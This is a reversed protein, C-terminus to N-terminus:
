VQTNENTKDLQKILEDALQIAKKIHRISSKDCDFTFSHKNTIEPNSLIANLIQGVFYERSNKM